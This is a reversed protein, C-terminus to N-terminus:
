HVGAQALRQAAAQVQAVVLHAYAQAGEPRLHIGDDWFYEPHGTSAAHWDILTVNPHRQSVRALVANNNAEWQRPVKVNVLIVQRTDGIIDFLQEVEDETMWGNNGVHIVVIQGLQGAKARSQLLSLARPLSLGVEADIGLNPLADQLPQLAGLMVSDGIATVHYRALLSAPATPTPVPTPTPPVPTPSPASTPTVQPTEAPSATVPVPISTPTPLLTPTPPLTPTAAVAAAGNGITHVATVTLYTPPASPKARAASIMVAAVFVIGCSVVTMGLMGTRQRLAAVQERRWTQWLRGVLGTRFPQEIFRYSLEALIATVLCRLVFLPLGQLPVDLQPRTLMLVPWHWLYISYSRLGVWQVPRLTLVAPLSRSLPHTVLVLVAASALATVAFGGRYLAPHAENLMVLCFVLVGLSLWSAVEALWRRDTSATAASAPRARLPWLWALLAGILLEAARTDTGYYARPNEGIGRVLVAMLLASVVIGIGVTAVARRKPWRALWVACIVPWVLYFQEEVALSWLHQVLPPRGMVVFYPQHRFVFAWNTVYFFAALVDGRLRAVEAPDTLEVYALLLVLMAYLAPLLRRARRLWFRPLDIRGQTAQEALLLSTILYGSIVFFVTVGLFGGPLWSPAAHYIVVAAVALARLGDIAPVHPLRPSRRRQVVPTDVAHAADLARYREWFAAHVRARGAEDAM